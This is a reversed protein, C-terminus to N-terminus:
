AAEVPTALSVQIRDVLDSISIPKRLLAISGTVSSAAAVAIADKSYGTLLIAPLHPCRERAARIVALGDMGPMSFDSVLVDVTQGAALRDLAEAGNAAVQVRFGEDELQEALFERVLVEDDVLLIRCRGGAGTSAPVPAEAEPAVEPVPYAHHEAVPFWLAVSTGEGPRSEIRLAGGSQAALGNAMALGLGTGVGLPKTTFFPECAHLLTADDMGSGTDAVTLRVYRGPALGAPHPSGDPAVTESAAQLTLSGGHPMADRANTALNIMATELQGKDALMFPIGAEATVSVAIGAGLTHALLDRLDALVANPDLPAAQLVASRGFMLLRGTVAAGRATAELALRSFRGIRANGAADREILQLAGQIMQLVNNFDHAIGGALQGLSQMREAHAARAQAAERASVEESVRKELGANLRRLDAEREELAAAMSDFAVGLRGFENREKMGTRSALAGSRWSEAAALLRNVPGGILRQGLVATTALALATGLFILALSIWNARTVAAFTNERDLGVRISLGIPDANVPSYAVIVARGQDLSPLTALGVEKGELTFRSNDPIPTGLFRQQGPRRVLITGNRDTITVVADQPLNLHEVQEALWNVNLALVAVGVIEGNRNRFRKAIHITPLGSIRGVTYDGTAFNDSRLAINFFARDSSNISPDVPKPSCRISGDTGMVLANNYRPSTALLNTLLRPCREPDNDQLGPAGIVADLVQEAGEIIRQQEASVLRVLRLAEDGVLNERVQRTENESYIQFALAPVMAVFMILLLRTLLRNM